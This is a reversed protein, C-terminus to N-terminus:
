GMYDYEDGLALAPDGRWVTTIVGEGAHMKRLLINAIYEAHERSQVLESSPHSFETVGFNTIGAEDSVVVTKSTAELANGSVTIVTIQYTNSTNVIICTCANVGSEFKEIRVLSNSSVALAYAVESTYDITLELREGADLNLEAEATDVVSDSISIESYDM